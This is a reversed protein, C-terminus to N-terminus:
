KMNPFDNRVKVSNAPNLDLVMEQSPRLEVRLRWIPQGAVRNTLMYVGPVMNKFKYRGEEDTRLTRREDAAQGGPQGILSLTMRSMPKADAGDEAFAATGELSANGVERGEEPPTAAMAKRPLAGAAALWRRAAEVEASGAQGRELVWTFERIAEERQDLHSAAVALGYHLPLSEPSTELARRYLTAAQAYEGRALAQAAQTALDPEARPPPAPAECAALALILLPAALRLRLRPSRSRAERPDRPPRSAPSM